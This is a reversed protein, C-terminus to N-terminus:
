GVVRHVGTLIEALEWFRRWLDRDYTEESSRALRMQDLYRGTVDQVDPSSALYVSTRAGVEPSDASMGPFGAHLLKTAIVGPHLCNATVGWDTLRKALEYTFVIVALKSSNYANYPDYRREGNPDSLDPHAGFHAISAVNVVRSPASAHLLDTLESTLLFPALYNVALTTEIGDETLARRPMFVAANNVLVDLREYRRMIESALERVQRQSSLDAVVEDVTGAKSAPDGQEAIAREVEVAARHARGGDRGHVIVRAGLRGLEKATELGIGSTSGTVLITQGTAGLSHAQTV